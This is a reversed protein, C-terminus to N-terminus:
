FRYACYDDKFKTLFPEIIAIGLGAMEALQLVTPEFKAINKLLLKRIFDERLKTEQITTPKKFIDEGSM